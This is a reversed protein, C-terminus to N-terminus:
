CIIALVAGLAEGKENTVVKLPYVETGLSNLFYNRAGKKFDGPLGNTYTGVSVWHTIKIRTICYLLALTVVSIKYVTRMYSYPIYIAIPVRRTVGLSSDNLLSLILFFDYVSVQGDWSVCKNLCWASYNVSNCAQISWLHFDWMPSSTNLWFWCNYTSTIYYHFLGVKIKQQRGKQIGSGSGSKALKFYNNQIQNIGVYLRLANNYNQSYYGNERVWGWFLPWLGGGTHM